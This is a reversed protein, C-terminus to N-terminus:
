KHIQKHPAVHYSKFCRKGGPWKGEEGAEQLAKLVSNRNSLHKPYKPPILCMVPSLKFHSTSPKHLFIYFLWFYLFHFRWWASLTALSHRWLHGSSLASFLCVVLSSSLVCTQLVFTFNLHLEFLFRPCPHNNGSWLHLNRTCGRSPARNSHWWIVVFQQEEFISFM